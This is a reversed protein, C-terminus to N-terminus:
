STFSLYTNNQYDSRCLMGIRVNRAAFKCKEDTNRNYFGLIIPNECRWKGKKENQFMFLTFKAIAVAGQFTPHKEPLAKMTSGPHKGAKRDENRHREPVLRLDQQLSEPGTQWKAKPM